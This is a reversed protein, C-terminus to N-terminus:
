HTPGMRMAGSILLNRVRRTREAAIRRKPRRVAIRGTTSAEIPPRMLGIPLSPGFAVLGNVERVVAVVVSIADDGDVADGTYSENHDFSDAADNGFVDAAAFDM